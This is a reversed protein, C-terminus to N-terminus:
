LITKRYSLVERTRTRRRILELNVQDDILWPIVRGNHGQSKEWRDGIFVDFILEILIRHPKDCSLTLM